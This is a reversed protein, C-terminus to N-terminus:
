ARCSRRGRGTPAITLTNSARDSATVRILELDIEVFSANVSAADDVKFSTSNASVSETLAATADVQSVQGYLALM